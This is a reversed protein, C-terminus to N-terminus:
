LVGQTASPASLIAQEQVFNALLTVHSSLVEWLVLDKKPNSAFLPMQDQFKADEVDLLVLTYLEMVEKPQELLDKPSLNVSVMTKEISVM